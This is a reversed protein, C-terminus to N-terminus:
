PLTRKRFSPPIDWNTSRTHFFLGPSVAWSYRPRSCGGQGEEETPQARPLYKRWSLWYWSSWSLGDTRSITFSAKTPSHYFVLGGLSCPTLPTIDRGM